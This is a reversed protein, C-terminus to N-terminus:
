LDSFDTGGIIEDIPKISPKLRPELIEIDITISCVQKNQHFLCVANKEDLFATIFLEPIDLFFDVSDKIQVRDGIKLTSM